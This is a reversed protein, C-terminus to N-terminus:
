VSPKQNFAVAGAHEAELESPDLAPVTVHSILPHHPRIDAEQSAVLIEHMKEGPRLGTFKIEINKGSLAIMKKAVDLIKIPSGMDLIMCEGSTAIAGAQIVLSCAEPITMFYRTIDPHTVTLPGGDEIQRRFTHLMSGRSGLVNGFRVSVFVGSTQASHWATLREALRKTRGLVSTPDAAKDTSINVFTGVKYEAALELLNLSGLVNTKWGEEPYQELMPLHKLAATHFVVDPHHTEFVARLAEKDRIDCLVMDNTDLLGQHYIDLQVGHLASEDRDLLVLERAGLQHVQRAIESGISGGAGTILVVKDNIYKAVEPLDIEVQRRGLIDAVDVKRVDQLRLGGGFIQTIPPLTLTEVGLPATTSVIRDMLAPPPDSIAVLVTSIQSESIIPELAEGNGLVKVGSIRLNRKGPDDDILGIVRYPSNPDNTILTLLQEARDGAGYVLIAETGKPTPRLYNRAGRILTRGALMFVAALPPAFLGVAPPYSEAGRILYTIIAGAAGAGVTIAMLMVVESFSGIRYRTRHLKTVWALALYVGITVAAYVLLSREFHTSLRLDYRLLFISLVGALWSMVDWLMLTGRLMYTNRM